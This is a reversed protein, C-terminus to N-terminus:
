TMYNNVHKLVDNALTIGEEVTVCSIFINTDDAYLFFECLSKYLM